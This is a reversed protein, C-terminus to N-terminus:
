EPQLLRSVRLRLYLQSTEPTAPTDPDSGVSLSAPKGEPVGLIADAVPEPDGQEDRRSVEVFLWHTDGPILTGERRELEVEIIWGDPLDSSQDESAGIRVPEGAAAVVVPVPHSEGALWLEPDILFSDALAPALPM